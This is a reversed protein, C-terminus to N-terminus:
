LYVHPGTFESQPPLRKCRERMETRVSDESLSAIDYRKKMEGEGCFTKIEKLIVDIEPRRTPDNHICTKILTMSPHDHGIAELFKERREAESVGIVKDGEPRTPGCQPEPWEGCLMHIMIVGYSFVDMSTDYRPHAEMVEPPMFAPTGPIGTSLSAHFPSLDILKSMGFDSIKAMLDETLLVNNSSLDRHIIPPDHGHLYCLGFAVDRLISYITQTPLVGRKEIETTLNTPLFEMVLIPVRDNERFYVGHFQVIHPHQLSSLIHCEERFHRLTYSHEGQELLITHIAKGACKLGDYMVEYVIAYSGRGIEKGTLQLQMLTFPELGTFLDYRKAM